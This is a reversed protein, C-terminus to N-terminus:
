ALRAFEGHMSKAAACYAVYAEETTDFLGLHIAKKDVTIQAVWKGTPSHFSVGKYGSTNASRMRQNRKNECSTAVRLNEIRNDTRVGNIHDIEMDDPTSENHLAWIIRHALHRKYDITVCLYGNGTMAGAITGAFRSNWTSHARNSKFLSRPRVSWVLGGAERDYSFLHNFLEKRYERREM